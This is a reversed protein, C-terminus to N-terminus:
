NIAEGQPLRHHERGVLRVGHLLRLPLGSGPNLESLSRFEREAESLLGARAYLVGLVLHSGAYRQRARRLARARTADLLKFKAAPAPLVPARVEEDGRRATVQWYYTRGPVLEVPVSWETGALPGSTVVEDYGADTVTVSYSSAGELASWRLLPRREEIVVGVPSQPGFASGGGGGLLVSRGERLEALERPVEVRGSLLASSVSKRLESPLAALGTVTGDRRLTIRSGADNLTVVPRSDPAHAPEPVRAADGPGREGEAQERKQEQESPPPPQTSKDARESLVPVNSDAPRGPWERGGGWLRVLAAALAVGVAVAMLSAAVRLRSRAVSQLLRARLPMARDLSALAPLSVGGTPMDSSRRLATVLDTCDPCNELHTEAIETDVDGARGRVYDLADERTLHFSREATDPILSAQLTAYDAGLPRVIGYAEACASCSLLHRRVRLFDDPRLERRRYDILQRASPHKDM